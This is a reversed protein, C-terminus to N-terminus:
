EDEDNGGDEDALDALEAWEAGGWYSQARDARHQTYDHRLQDRLKTFEYTDLDYSLAALRALDAPDAYEKCWDIWRNHNGRMEAEAREELRAMTANEDRVPRNFARDHDAQTCGDPYGNM